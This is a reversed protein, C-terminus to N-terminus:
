NYLCTSSEYVPYARKYIDYNARKHQTADQKPNNVPMHSTKQCLDGLM